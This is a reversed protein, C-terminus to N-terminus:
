MVTINTLFNVNEFISDYLWKKLIPTVQPHPCTLSPTFLVLDAIILTYKRWSNWYCIDKFHGYYYKTFVLFLLSTLWFQCFYVLDDKPFNQLDHLILYSDIFETSGFHTSTSNIVKLLFCFFSHWSLMWKSRVLCTHAGVSNIWCCKEMSCLAEEWDCYSYRVAAATTGIKKIIWDHEKWNINPFSVYYSFNRYLNKLRPTLFPGWM